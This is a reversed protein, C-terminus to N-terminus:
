ELGFNWGPRIEVCRLTPKKSLKTFNPNKGDLSLGINPPCTLASLQDRHIEIPPIMFESILYEMYETKNVNLIYNDSQSTIASLIQSKRSEILSFCDYKSFAHFESSYRGRM